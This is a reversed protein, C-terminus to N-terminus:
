KRGFRKQTMIVCITWGCMRPRAGCSSAKLASASSRTSFIIWRYNVYHINMGAVQERRIKPTAM